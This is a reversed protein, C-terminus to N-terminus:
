IIRAPNGYAINNDDIDKLVNSGCGITNNNGIELNNKIVTGAGIMNNSGIRVTGCIITGPSINNFSNIKCDHEIISGTNIINFDSIKVSSNLFTKAFIINGKGLKVSPSIISSKHICNIWEINTLKKLRNYINERTELSGISILVKCLDKHCFLYDIEGICEIGRYVINGKEIKDDLIKLKSEPYNELLIDIIPKSNGGGGIIFIM